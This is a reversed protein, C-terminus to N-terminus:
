ASSFRPGSSATASFAGGDCRCGRPISSSWKTARRAWWRRWAASSISWSAISSTPTFDPDFRDFLRPPPRRGRAVMWQPKGKLREVAARGVLTETVPTDRNGSPVRAAVTFPIELQGIASGEPGAFAIAVADTEGVVVVHQM